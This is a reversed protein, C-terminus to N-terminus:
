FYKENKKINYISNINMILYISKKILYLISEVISKGLFNKLINKQIMYDM